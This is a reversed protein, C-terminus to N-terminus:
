RPLGKLLMNTAIEAVQQVTLAGSSEFWTTTSNLMGLFMMLYPLRQKPQNRLTHSQEAIYKDAVDMVERQAQVILARKEPPLNGIENMLVKQPAPAFSYCDILLRAIWRLKEAALVKDRTAFWTANDVVKRAQGWMIAFLIEEKSPFYHFVAAKTMGCAASIEAVSTGLFGNKAMLEAAATVIKERREHFMKERREHYDVARARAM